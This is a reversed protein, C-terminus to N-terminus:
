EFHQLLIDDIIFQFIKKKMIKCVQIRPDLKEDEFDDSGSSDYRRRRMHYHDSM